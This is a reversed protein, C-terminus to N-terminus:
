LVHLSVIAEVCPGTSRRQGVKHVRVPVPHFSLINQLNTM